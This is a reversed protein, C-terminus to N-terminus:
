SWWSTLGVVVPRGNSLSHPRCKRQCDPLMFSSFDARLQVTSDVNRIHIQNIRCSSTNFFFTRFRSSIRKRLKSAQPSPLGSFTPLHDLVSPYLELQLHTVPWVRCANHYILTESTMGTSSSLPKKLNKSYKHGKCGGKLGDILYQSVRIMDFNGTSFVRGM